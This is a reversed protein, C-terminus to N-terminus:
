GSCRPRGRGTGSVEESATLVGDAADSVAPERWAATPSVPEEVGARTGPRNRIDPFAPQARRSHKEDVEWGSTSEPCEEDLALAQWGACPKGAARPFSSGGAEPPGPSSSDRELESQHRM